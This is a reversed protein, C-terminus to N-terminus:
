ETNWQLDNAGESAKKNLLRPIEITVTDRDVSTIILTVLSPKIVVTIVSM